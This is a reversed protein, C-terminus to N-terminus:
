YGGKITKKIESVRSKRAKDSSKPFMIDKVELVYDNGTGKSISKLNFKIQATGESGVEMDDLCPISVKSDKSYSDGIMLTPYCMKKPVNSSNAEVPQAGYDNVKRGLSYSAM